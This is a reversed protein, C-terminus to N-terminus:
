SSISTASRSRCSVCVLVLVLKFPPLHHRERDFGFAPLVKKVIKCSENEHDESKVMFGSDHYTCALRLLAIEHEPIIESRAIREAQETVDITHAVSHYTLEKPLRMEMRALIYQEASAIDM